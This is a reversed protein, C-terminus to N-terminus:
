QRDVSFVLIRNEPPDKRDKLNPCSEVVPFDLSKPLFSSFTHFLTILFIRHISVTSKLLVETGCFPM